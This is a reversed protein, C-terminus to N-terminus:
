RRQAAAIELVDGPLAEDLAISSGDPRELWIRTGQERHLVKATDILAELQDKKRLRDALDAVALLAPPIGLILTALAVPDPSKRDEDASPPLPIRSPTHSFAQRFFSDLAEATAKTDGGELRFRLDAM